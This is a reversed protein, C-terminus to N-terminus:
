IARTMIWDEPAYLAMARDFTPMDLDMQNLFEVVPVKHTGAKLFVYLDFWM